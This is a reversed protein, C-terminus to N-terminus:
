FKAYRVARTSHSSSWVLSSLDQDLLCRSRLDQLWLFGLNLYSIRRECTSHSRSSDRGKRASSAQTLTFQIHQFMCSVLILYMKKLVCFWICLWFNLCHFRQFMCFHWIWVTFISFFVLNWIWALFLFNLCELKEITFVFGFVCGFGSNLYLSPAPLWEKGVVCGLLDFFISMRRICM